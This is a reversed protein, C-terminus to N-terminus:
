TKADDETNSGATKPGILWGGGLYTYTKIEGEKSHGRIVKNNSKGGNDWGKSINCVHTTDLVVKDLVGM